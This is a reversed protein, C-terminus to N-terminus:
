HSCYRGYPLAGGYNCGKGRIMPVVLPTVAPLFAVVPIAAWGHGPIPEGSMM